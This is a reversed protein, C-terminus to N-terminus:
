NRFEFVIGIVSGGWYGMEYRKKTGVSDLRKGSYRVKKCVYRGIGVCVWLFIYM